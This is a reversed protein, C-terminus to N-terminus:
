AASTVCYQVPLTTLLTPLLDDLNNIDSFRNPLLRPDYFTDSLRHPHPYLCSVSRHRRNYLGYCYGDM